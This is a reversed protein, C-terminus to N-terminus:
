KLKLMQRLDLLHKETAELKGKVFSEPEAPVGANILERLLQASIKRSLRFTAGAPNLDDYPVLEFTVPKAVLLGTPSEEILAFEYSNSYDREQIRIEM